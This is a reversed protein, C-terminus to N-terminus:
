IIEEIAFAHLEALSTLRGRAVVAGRNMLVLETSLQIDPLSDDAFQAFSIETCEPACIQMLDEKPPEFQWKPPMTEVEPMMLCDGPALGAREEATLKFSAYVPRGLRTMSRISSHNLDIFKLMGFSRIIDPTVKLDFSAMIKGEATVIEFGTCGERNEAPAIGVVNLQRRVANEIIQFLPGCEREVLALKLADPINNKVDWLVHLDKFSERNALGIFNDSDDLRVAIGLVDRFKVDARRMICPTDRWRVPMAWAPSDFIAEAGAKEWFPWKQLLEFANM